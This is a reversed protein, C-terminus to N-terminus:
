ALNIEIYAATVFDTAPNNTFSWSDGSHSNSIVGGWDIVLYETGSGVNTVWQVREIGSTYAPMQYTANLNGNDTSITIDLDDGGKWSDYIFGYLWNTLDTGSLTDASITLQTLNPGVSAFTTGNTSNSVMWSWGSTSPAVFNPSPHPFVVKYRGATSTDARTDSVNNTFVNGDLDYFFDNPPNSSNGNGWNPKFDMALAAVGLYTVLQGGSTYQMGGVITTWPNQAGGRLPAGITYDRQGQYNKRAIFLGRSTQSPTGDGLSVITGNTKDFYYYGIKDSNYSGGVTGTVVFYIRKKFDNTGGPVFDDGQGTFGLATVEVASLASLSFVNAISTNNFQFTTSAVSTAIKTSRVYKVVNLRIDGSSDSTGVLFDAETSDSQLLCLKATKLQNSADIITTPTSNSSENTIGGSYGDNLSFAEFKTYRNYTSKNECWVCFVLDDGGVYAHAVDGKVAYRGTSGINISGGHLLDNTSTGYEQIIHHLDVSGNGKDVLLAMHQAYVGTDVLSSHSFCAAGPIANTGVSGDFTITNNTSEALSFGGATGSNTNNSLYINYAQLTIDSSLSTNRSGAFLVNTSLDRTDNKSSWSSTMPCVVNVNVFTSPIALRSVNNQTYLSYKDGTVNSRILYVYRQSSNSNNRGMAITFPQDIFLEQAINCQWTYSAASQHQEIELFDLDSPEVFATYDWQALRSLRVNQPNASSNYSRNSLFDNNNGQDNGSWIQSSYVGDTTSQDSQISVGYRMNSLIGDGVIGGDPDVSSNSALQLSKMSSNSLGLKGAVSSNDLYSEEYKSWQAVDGSLRITNYPVSKKYTTYNSAM